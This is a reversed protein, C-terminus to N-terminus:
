KNKLIEVIFSRETYAECATNLSLAMSYINLKAKHLAFTSIIQLFDLHCVSIGVRGVKGKGKPKARLAEVEDESRTVSLSTFSLILM